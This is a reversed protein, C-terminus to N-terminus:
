HEFADSVNAQNALELAPLDVSVLMIVLATGLHCGIWKSRQMRLRFQDVIWLTVLPKLQSINGPGAFSSTVISSQTVSKEPANLSVKKRLM